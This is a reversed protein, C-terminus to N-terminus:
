PGGDGSSEKKGTGAVTTVVGTKADVKRVRANLRDVVYLDGGPAVVVAYPENFTAKTAPGGDGSFGKKGTGAVTTITGTKLDIKRVCHNLAEAVYLGGKGDLDCHFPQDLTARTAQGGDGGYGREGTGAVSDITGAKAALLPLPLLCLAWFVARM